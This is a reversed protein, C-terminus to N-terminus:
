RSDVGSREGTGDPSSRRHISIGWWVGLSGVVIAGVWFGVIVGLIATGLNKDGTPGAAEGLFLGAAGGGAFGVLGFFVIKLGRKGPTHAWPIGAFLSCGGGLCLLILPIPYPVEMMPGASLGLAILALGIITLWGLITAM